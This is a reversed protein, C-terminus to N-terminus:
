PGPAKVPFIPFSPVGCTLSLFNSFSPFFILLRARQFLRMKGRRNTCAGSSTYRLLALPDDLSTLRDAIPLLTPAGTEQGESSSPTPPPLESESM